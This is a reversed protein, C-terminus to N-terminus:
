LEFVKNMSPIKEDFYTESGVNSTMALMVSHLGRREALSRTNNGLRFINFTTLFTHLLSAHYPDKVNETYIKWNSRSTQRSTGLFVIPKCFIRDIYPIMEPGIYSVLLDSSCVDSSWDSIRM